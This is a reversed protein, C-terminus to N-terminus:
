RVRSREGRDVELLFRRLVPLLLEPREEHPTHGVDRLLQFRATPIANATRRNWGPGIVPDSAGAVVLTPVEIRPLLHRLDPPAESVMVEWLGRDWGEAALLSAYAAVDDETARSPDHWSRAVRSPTIEGAFRRVITPGIARLPWRRLAPRLAPPAGVDGTIAPSILTLGSVREHAAALTELAATGGASAGILVARDLDYADLLALAIRASMARTYPNQGNWRSRPPRDTLGFGVRDFSVVRHDRSLGDQIHRWTAVSGYFHHFLVIAPADEPGTVRHHVSVGGVDLYRGEPRVEPDPEHGETEPSM